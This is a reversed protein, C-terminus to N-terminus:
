SGILSSLAQRYVTDSPVAISLTELPFSALMSAVLYFMLIYAHKNWSFGCRILSDVILQVPPQETINEIYPIYPELLKPYEEPDIYLSGFHEITEATCLVGLLEKIGTGQYRQILYAGMPSRPNIYDPWHQVIADLVANLYHQLHNSLDLGFPSAFFYAITNTLVEISSGTSNIDPTGGLCVEGSDQYVNPLPPVYLASAPTLPPEFTWVRLNALSIRHSNKYLKVMFLLPPLTVPLNLVPQYNAIPYLSVCLPQVSAPFEVTYITYKGSEIIQRTGNPLIGTDRAESQMMELFVDMLVRPPVYRTTDGYKLFIDNETFIISCPVTGSM